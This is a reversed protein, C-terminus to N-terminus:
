ISFNALYALEAIKSKQISTEIKPYLKLLLRGDLLPLDLNFICFNALKVIGILEQIGSIYQTDSHM